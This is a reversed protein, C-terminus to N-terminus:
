TRRSPLVWRPDMVRVTFGDARVKDAVELATPAMAGVAVVLLDCPTGAPGDESLVDVEGDARV